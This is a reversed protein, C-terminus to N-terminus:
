PMPLYKGTGSSPEEADLGPCSQALVLLWRFTKEPSELAAMRRAERIRFVANDLDWPAVLDLYQREIEDWNLVLIDSTSSRIPPFAEEFVKQEETIQRVQPARLPPVDLPRITPRSRRPYFDPLAPDTSPSNTKPSIM